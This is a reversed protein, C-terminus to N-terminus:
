PARLVFDVRVSDEAGVWFAASPAQGPALTWGAPPQVTLTYDGQSPVEGFYFGGHAASTLTETWGGTGLRRLELAAGGVGQGAESRVTGRVYSAPPRGCGCALICSGSGLLMALALVGTAMTSRKMRNM